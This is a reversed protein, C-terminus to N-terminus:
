YRKRNRNINTKKSHTKKTTSTYKKKNRMLTTVDSLDEDEEKLNIKGDSLEYLHEFIVDDKQGEDEEMILGDATNALLWVWRFVQQGRLYVGEPDQQYLFGEPLIYAALSRREVFANCETNYRTAEQGGTLCVRGSQWFLAERLVGFSASRGLNKLVEWAIEPYGLERAATLWDQRVQRLEALSMDASAQSRSPPTCLQMTTTILM